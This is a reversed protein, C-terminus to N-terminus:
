TQGNVWQNLGEVIFPFSTPAAAVIGTPVPGGANKYVLFVKGPTMNGM